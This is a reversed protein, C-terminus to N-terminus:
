SFQFEDEDFNKKSTKYIKYNIKKDGTIKM